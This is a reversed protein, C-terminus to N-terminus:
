AERLKHLVLVDIAGSRILTDAIQLARRQTAQEVLARSRADNWQQAGAVAPSAMLLPLASASLVVAISRRMM